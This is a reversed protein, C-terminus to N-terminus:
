SALVKTVRDLLMAFVWLLLGAFVFMIVGEVGHYFGSAAAPSVHVSLYGTLWIRIGNVVVAIPAAALVIALRVLWHKQWFLTALIALCTLSILSRIGSCADAVWMRDMGPIHILNGDLTAPIGTVDLLGTAILAASRTLPTTLGSEVPGPLRCMLLLVVLIPLAPRVGNWGYLAWLIAGLAGVFTFPRLTVLFDMEGVLLFLLCPVLLLVGWLSPAPALRAFQERRQWTFYAALPPMLFGHSYEPLHTWSRWLFAFTPAYAVALLLCVAALTMRHWRDGWFPAPVVPRRPMIEAPLM